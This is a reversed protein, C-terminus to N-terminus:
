GPVSLSFVLMLHQNLSHVALRVTLICAYLLLVHALELLYLSHELALSELSCYPSLALADDLFTGGGALGVPVRGVGVSLNPADLLDSFVPYGEIVQVLVM